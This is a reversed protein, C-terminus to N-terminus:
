SEHEKPTAAGPPQSADIQAALMNIIGAATGPFAAVWERTMPVQAESAACPGEHGAARSCKWGKPPLTCEASAVPGTCFPCSEPEWAETISTDGCCPWQKEYRSM